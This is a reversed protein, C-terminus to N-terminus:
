WTSLTPHQWSVHAEWATARCGAGQSLALPCCCLFMDGAKWAIHNCSCQLLALELWSLCPRLSQTTMTDMLWYVAQVLTIHIIFSATASPLAHQSTVFHLLSGVCHQVSLVNHEAQSVGQALGLAEQTAVGWCMM